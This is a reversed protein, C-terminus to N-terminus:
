FTVCTTQIRVRVEMVIWLGRDSSECRKTGSLVSLTRERKGNVDGNNHAVGEIKKFDHAFLVM